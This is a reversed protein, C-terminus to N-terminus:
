KKQLRKAFYNVLLEGLFLLFSSAILLLFLKFVDSLEQMRFRVSPPKPTLGLRVRQHWVKENDMETQARYHSILGSEIIRLTIENFQPIFPSAKPAMAAMYFEFIVMPVVELLNDGTIPDFFRNMYRGTYFEGRLFAVDKNALVEKTGQQATVGEAYKLVKHLDERRRSTTSEELVNIMSPTLLLKYNHDLLERLTTIVGVNESANINKVILGQYIASMIMAFFIASATTIRSSANRRKHKVSMNIFIAYLHMFISSVSKRPTGLYKGEIYNIITFVSIVSIKFIGMLVLTTRDFQHAPVLRMYRRRERKQIVYRYTCTSISQLFVSKTTQYNSILRPNAVFDVKEYELAALSGTFTGNPYVSGYAADDPSDIYVPTFNMKQAIIHIMEGDPYGYRVLENNSDYIPLSVMPYPFIDIKLPYKQLNSIRARIFKEIEVLQLSFSNSTFDTCHFDPRRSYADGSFPNYLCFTGKQDVSSAMAVAVNILKYKEFGVKLVEEASEYDNESLQFMLKTRPNYNSVREFIYNLADSKSCKIFFGCTLPLSTVSSTSIPNGLQLRKWSSYVTVPRFLNGKKCRFFDLAAFGQTLDILTLYHQEDFYRFIIKMGAADLPNCELSTPILISNLTAITKLCIIIPLLKIVWM